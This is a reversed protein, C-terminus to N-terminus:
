EEKGENNKDTQQKYKGIGSDEIHDGCVLIIVVTPLVVTWVFCATYRIIVDCIFHCTRCHLDEYDFKHRYSYSMNNELRPREGM